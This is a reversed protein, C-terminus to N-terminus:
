GQRRNGLLVKLLILSGIGAGGIIALKKTDIGLVSAPVTVATKNAPVLAVSQFAKAVSSSKRTPDLHAAADVIGAPIFTKAIGTTIPSTFKGVKKIAKTLGPLFAGIREDGAVHVKRMYKAAHVKRMYKAAPVNPVPVSYGGRDGYLALLEVGSIREDIVM